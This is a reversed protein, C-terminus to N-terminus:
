FKLKVKGVISPVRGDAIRVRENELFPLYINFLSSFSTMHHFARSDVLWPASNQSCFVPNPNSRTQALSGSPINSLANSKLLKILHDMQEKSFPNAEAESVM